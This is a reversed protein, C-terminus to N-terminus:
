GTTVPAARWARVVAHRLADEEEPQVTRPDIRLAGESLRAVVPPEGTRLARALADDGPLTVVWTPLGEGPLAGGGGFGEDPRVGAPLGADVLRAALAEARVRVAEAPAQLMRVAPPLEGAELELLVAELAGLVLRDLRLARYLPHRRLRAVLDRRGVVIGAQPGGLLKDGSFFVLDAGAAIVEAPTPEGLGAVLAGSGRDELYLVGADRAVKATAERSPQGTFGEVRFNSPHVRLIAATDPGVARAFDEPRTRNTAGVERLRAGCATIVDPIRFAGGIEVLEGRSVIVERDRALATLGLLVAAACNNVALADEAGTLRRLLPAVGALREGRRGGELDMELTSYGEALAAVARAAGASLPARGLNTHLVIGTANIVRRLHPRRRRAVRAAVADAWADIAGDGPPPSAGTRVEEALARAEALAIARPLGPLQRLLLDISPPRREVPPLM